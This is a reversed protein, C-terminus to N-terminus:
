RRWSMVATSLLSRSSWAVGHWYRNQQSSRAPREVKVSVVVFGDPFRSMAADFGSRGSLQLKGKAIVGGTEYQEQKM